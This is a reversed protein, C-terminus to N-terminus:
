SWASHLSHVSLQLMCQLIALKIGETHYTESLFGMLSGIAQIDESLLESGM